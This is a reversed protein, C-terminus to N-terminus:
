SSCLELGEAGMSLIWGRDSCSEEISMEPLRWVQGDSSGYLVGMPSWAIHGLYGTSFSSYFISEEDDRGLRFVSKAQKSLLYVAGDSDVTVARPIIEGLEQISHSDPVMRMLKGSKGAEDVAVNTGAIYITGDSSQAMGGSPDIPLRACSVSMLPGRGIGAGENPMRCFGNYNDLFSLVGGFSLLGTSEADVSNGIGKNLIPVARDDDAGLRYIVGDNSGIYVNGTEDVTIGSVESGSPYDLQVEISGGDRNSVMKKVITGSAAYINGDGDIAILPARGKPMGTFGVTIPFQTSAAPNKWPPLALTNSEANPNALTTQLPASGKSPESNDLEANSHPYMSYGVVLVACGALASTSIMLRRRNLLAPIKVKRWFTSLFRGKSDETLAMKAAQAFETCTEYRDERELSLAKRLVRDFQEPVSSVLQRVSPETIERIKRARTGDQGSPYLVEGTIIEYLTCALSFQDSRHDIPSRQLLQEPSAYEYSGVFAGTATNGGREDHYKAIGFDALYARIRNGSVDVLINAPKVDRHYISEEPSDGYSHAYDLADAIQNAIEVAQEPTFKRSRADGHAIYPTSYFYVKKDKVVPDDFKYVPLIHPHNLNALTRAEEVFRRRVADGGRLDPHLIKLAVERGAAKRDEAVYVDGYAGSKVHRLIRYTGITANKAYVM